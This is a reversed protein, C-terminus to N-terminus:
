KLLALRSRIQKRLSDLEKYNYFFRLKKDSVTSGTPKANLVFYTFSEAIDEGPNTAAYETIFSKPTDDYAYIEENRVKQLYEDDAWFIDIFDDLYSDANMCGEQLLQNECNEAFRELVSENDTIPYYRM